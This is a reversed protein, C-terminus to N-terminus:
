AHDDEAQLTLLDSGSLSKGQVLQAFIAGEDGLSDTANVQTDLFHGIEELLISTIMEPRQANAQVFTADLYITGTLADFVGDAGQLDAAVQVSPLDSFNSNIIEKARDQNLGTGLAIQLPSLWDPQEFFNILSTQAAELAQGTVIDLEEEAVPKVESAISAADLGTPLQWETSPLLSSDKQRLQPIETPNTEWIASGEPLGIPNNLASDLSSVVPDLM